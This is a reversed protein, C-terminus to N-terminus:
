TASMIAPAATGEAVRSEAWGKLTDPISINMQAMRGTYLNASIKGLPPTVGSPHGRAVGRACVM